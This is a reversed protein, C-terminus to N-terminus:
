LRCQGLFLQDAEQQSLHPVLQSHLQSNARGSIRSHFFADDCEIGFRRLMEEHVRRHFVETDAMTGDVDFLLAKLRRPRASSSVSGVSM